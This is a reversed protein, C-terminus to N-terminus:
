GGSPRPVHYGLRQELQDRISEYTSRVAFELERGDTLARTLWTAAREIEGDPHAALPGPVWRSLINEATEHTWPFDESVLDLIPEWEGLFGLGTALAVRMAGDAPDDCAAYLRRLEDAGKQGIAPQEDDFARRSIWGIVIAAVGTSPRSYSGYRYDNITVDGVAVGEQTVHLLRDMLDIGGVAAVAVAVRYLDRPRMESDFREGLKEVAPHSVSFFGPSKGRVMSAVSAASLYKVCVAFEVPDGLLLSEVSKESMWYQNFVRRWPWTNIHDSDAEHLLYDAIAIIENITSLSDNSRLADVLCAYPEITAIDSLDQALRRALALAEPVAEDEAAVLAALPGVQEPRSAAEALIPIAQRRAPGDLGALRHAAAAALLPDPGIALETWREPDEPGTLVAVCPDDSSPDLEPVLHDILQGVEAGISFALRRELLLPLEDPGTLRRVIALRYGNLEDMRDALQEQFLDAEITELEARCRRRHRQELKPSRLAHLRDLAQSAKFVLPWPETDDILDALIPALTTRNTSVAAAVAALRVELPQEPELTTALTTDLDTVLHQVIADFRPQGVLEALQNLAAIRATDPCSADTTVDHLVQRAAPQGLEALAEAARGHGYEGAGNDRLKREQAALFQDVVAPDPNEVVRLCRATLRSDVDLATDIIEAVLEAQEGAFGLLVVLTDHWGRRRVAQAVAGPQTAETRLFHQAAFYEQFSQHMFRLRGGHEELLESRCIEDLVAEWDHARAPLYRHIERREIEVDGRQVLEYGIAGLLEAKDNYGFRWGVPEGHDAHHQEELYWISFDRFLAGRTQPTESTTRFREVLMWLFLPTQALDRVHEYDAEHLLLRILREASQEHDAAGRERLYDRIYREAQGPSLKDLTVIPFPLLGPRYNYQRHCALVPTRPFEHRLAVIWEAVAQKDDDDPENLGDVIVYVLGLDLLETRGAGAVVADLARALGARHRKRGSVARALEGAHILVPWRPRIGPQNGLIAQALRYQWERAATSKGCGADGLVLLADHDAILDLVDDRRSDAPTPDLESELLDDLIGRAPRLGRRSTTAEHLAGTLEIYAQLTLYVDHEDRLDTIIRDAQPRLSSRALDTTVAALVVELPDDSRAGSRRAARALAAHEGLNDRAPTGAADVLAVGDRGLDDSSWYRYSNGTLVETAVAAMAVSATTSATTPDPWKLALHGFLCLHRLYEDPWDARREAPYISRACRRVAWLLRFPDALHPSTAALHDALKPASDDPLRGCAALLRQLRVHDSWTLEPSLADRALCGELRVFDVLMPQGAATRAYDILYPEGDVLLANRPNLDGHVRSTVRRTAGTHLLDRLLRFPDPARAGPGEVMDDAIRLDPALRWVLDHRARCRTERVIGYVEFSAGEDLGRAIDAIPAYDPGVVEVSCTEDCVGILRGGRWRAVLDSLTVRDPPAIAADLKTSADRVHLAFRRTQRRDAPTGGIELRRARPLYKTVEIVLDAGLPRNWWRELAAKPEARAADYLDTHAKDFLREIAAVAASPDRRALDELTEPTEDSVNAEAVHQYVIAEPRDADHIPGMTLAGPTAAEIRAFCNNADSLLDFYAACEDVLEHRPGVKVVKGVRQDKRVVTVQLVDSASRGGRLAREVIVEDPRKPWCARGDGVSIRKIADEIEACRDPSWDDGVFSVYM